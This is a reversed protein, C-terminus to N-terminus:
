YFCRWWIIYFLKFTGKTPSIFDTFIEVLCTEQRQRLKRVGILSDFGYLLFRLAGIKVSSLLAQIDSSRSILLERSNGSRRANSGSTTLVSSRRLEGGGSVGGCCLLRDPINIRNGPTLATSCTKVLWVWSHFLSLHKLQQSSSLYNQNWRLQFCARKEKM